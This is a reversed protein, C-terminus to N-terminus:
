NRPCYRFRVRLERPERLRRSRSRPLRESIQGSAFHPVDTRWEESRNGTLYHSRGPLQELGQLQTAPDAGVLLLELVAPEFPKDAATPTKPSQGSSIPEDGVHDEDSRSTSRLRQGSCSVQGSQRNSRPQTRVVPTPESLTRGATDRDDSRSQCFRRACSGSLLHSFCGASIEEFIGLFM